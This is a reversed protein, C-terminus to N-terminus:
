VDRGEGLSRLCFPCVDKMYYPTDLVRIARAGNGRKIYGKKEIADLHGKVGMPTGIGSDSALERLTPPYGHRTMYDLLNALVVSQRDTLGRKDKQNVPEVQSIGMM